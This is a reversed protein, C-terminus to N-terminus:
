AVLGLTVTDPSLCQLFFSHWRVHPHAESGAPDPGQLSGPCRAREWGCLSFAAVPLGLLPGEASVARGSMFASQQGGRSRPKFGGMWPVLSHNGLNQLTLKRKCSPHAPSGTHPLCRVMCSTVPDCAPFLWGLNVVM